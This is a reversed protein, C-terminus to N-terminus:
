TVVLRNKFLKLQQVPNLSSRSVNTYKLSLPFAGSFQNNALNDTQIHM